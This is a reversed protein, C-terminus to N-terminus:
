GESSDSRTFVHTCVGDRRTVVSTHVCACVCKKERECVKNYVCVCIERVCKSKSM